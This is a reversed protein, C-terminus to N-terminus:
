RLPNNWGYIANINAVMTENIIILLILYGFNSLMGNIAMDHTNIMKNISGIFIANNLM